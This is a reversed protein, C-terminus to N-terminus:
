LPDHDGPGNGEKRSLGGKELIRIFLIVIFASSILLVLFLNYRLVQLHIAEFLILMAAICVLLVWQIYSKGRMEGGRM